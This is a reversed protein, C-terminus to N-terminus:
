EPEGDRAGPNGVHPEGEDDRRHARMSDKPTAPEPTTRGRGIHEPLSRIFREIQGGQTKGMAEDLVCSGIAQLEALERPLGGDFEAIGAREDFSALWDEATPEVEKPTLIRVIEFKYHVLDQIVRAPPENAAALVLDGDDVEVVVGLDRASQLVKMAESM